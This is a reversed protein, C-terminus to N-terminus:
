INNKSKKIKIVVNKYMTEERRKQNSDNIQKVYFYDQYFHNQFLVFFNIRRNKEEKSM